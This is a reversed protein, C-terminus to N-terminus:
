RADDSSRSRDLDFHIAYRNVRKVSNKPDRAVSMPTHFIDQLPLSALKEQVAPTVNKPFRSQMASGYRHIVHKLLDLVGRKITNENVRADMSLEWPQSALQVLADDAIFKNNLFVHGQKDLPCQVTYNKSCGFGNKSVFGPLIIQLSAFRQAILGM